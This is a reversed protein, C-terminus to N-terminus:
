RPGRNLRHVVEMLIDKERQVKELEKRLKEFERMLAQERPTPETNDSGDRGEQKSKKRMNTDEVDVADQTLSVSTHRRKRPAAELSTM